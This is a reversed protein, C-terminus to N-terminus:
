LAISDPLLMLLLLTFEIVITTSNGTNGAAHLRNSRPLVQACSEISPAPYEDDQTM